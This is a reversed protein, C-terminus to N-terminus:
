CSQPKLIERMQCFKFLLVSKLAFKLFFNLPGNNWQRFFESLYQHLPLVDTREFYMKFGPLKKM